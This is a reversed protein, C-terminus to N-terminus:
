HNKAYSEPSLCPVHVLFSEWVLLKVGPLFLFYKYLHAYFLERLMDIHLCLVLTENRGFFTGGWWFKQGGSWEKWSFIWTERDKLILFVERAMFINVHLSLCFFQIKRMLPLRKANKTCMNVRVKETGKKERKKRPCKFCIHFYSTLYIIWRSKQATLTNIFSFIKKFSKEPRKTWTDVSM